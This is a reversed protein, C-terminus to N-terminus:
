VSGVRRLLAEGGPLRWAAVLGAGAARGRSTAGVVVTELRPDRTPFRYKYAEEGGLFRYESAGEELARRITEM